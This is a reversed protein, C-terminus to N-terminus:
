AKVDLHGSAIQKQINVSQQLLENIADGTQQQVDLQKRLLAVDTKKATAEQRAQLVHQVPGPISSM